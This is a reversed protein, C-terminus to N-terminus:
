AAESIDAYISEVAPGYREPAGLILKGNVTLIDREVKIHETPGHAEVIVVDIKIAAEQMLLTSEVPRSTTTRRAFYAIAFKVVGADYFEAAMDQALGRLLADDDPGGTAALPARPETEFIERVGTANETLWVV